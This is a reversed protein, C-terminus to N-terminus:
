WDCFDGVCTVGDRAIAADMLAKCNAIEDDSLSDVLYDGYPLPRRTRVWNEPPEHGSIDYHLTIEIPVGSLQEGEIYYLYEQGIHGDGQAYQRLSYTLWAQQLGPCSLYNCTLDVNRDSISVNIIGPFDDSFCTAGKAPRLHVTLRRVHTNHAECMLELQTPSTQCLNIGIKQRVIKGYM